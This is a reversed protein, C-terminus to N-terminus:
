RKRYKENAHKAIVEQTTTLPLLSDNDRPLTLAIGILDAVM